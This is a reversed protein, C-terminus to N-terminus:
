RAEPIITLTIREGDREIVVEVPEGIKVADLAYTYDYINEIKQGALEVIIDGGKIGAKDAPAGSSVGSLKTGKIGESAYDPITGLYARMVDRGGQPGKSRPQVEAYAPRLPKTILERAISEIFETARDLDAYNIRDPTDTPRHYDEHAGSFFHLGPIEKLYFSTSDTPLYPDEGLALSFGALVNKRELLGRWDGSSGVGQVSLRNEQMRGLMDMNLNAIVLSLEVPPDKCFSSSGLLGIEEGSWAAFIVGRDRRLPSSALAGAIELLAAVGSANDDAGPHVEGEEGKGALSNGGKGRGLHDYHAGIVLLESDARLGGTPPLLGLVNHGTRTEPELDVNLRVVTDDVSLTIREEGSDLASQLEQITKGSSALLRNATEINVSAVVIGSSAGGFDLGLSVLSGANPSNPGSVVLLGAAGRERAQLAKYRLGAYRNYIQRTEPSVDEPVFRLVLIIKGEADLDAYSDYLLEGGESPVVLGYGAFAVVGQTEGEDSLALPSFDEDFVFAETESASAIREELTVHPNPEVRLSELRNDRGAHVAATFSFQTTFGGIGAIPELGIAEYREIIYEAALREGETGTLRGELSESALFEVHSKLDAEVIEPVFGHVPAPPSQTALKAESKVRLPAEDLAARAAADNWAAIFLQGGERGSGSKYRTSTWLLQDGGPSFVPLGDFGETTTVQVPEKEGLADVIFLEFNEFGLKNSGFIITDGSPHFYPAWSMSGFETIRRVGSGDLRMTYIDAQLGDPTFRRWVIRTGDPSFFPGGDYGPTFTLRTQDTGDANMIFIEGFYSLDVEALQRERAPLASLPYASRISCFVIKSGDPSYSAEADYGLADTLRRISSGDQNAEFIDFQEDYDWSYRRQQGSARLELEARQLNESEGDLHTSSFLVKGSGPRFFSCTTKGTGPSVRGSEGTTLDLIYIQYFPNAPDRESQFILKGGAPDFYGEGARRGEFTLQRARTIFRAEDAWAASVSLLLFILIRM